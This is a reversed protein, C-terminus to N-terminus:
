APRGRPSYAIRVEKGFLTLNGSFLNLAYVASELTEYDMFGFGKNKGSTQDIPITVSTIPGAQIGIEFLM